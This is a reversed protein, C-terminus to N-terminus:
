INNNEKAYLWKRENENWKKWGKKKVNGERRGENSKNIQMERGEKVMRKEGAERWQKMDPEEENGRGYKRRMENKINRWVEKVKMEIVSKKRGNGAELSINSSQKEYYKWKMAINDCILKMIAKM